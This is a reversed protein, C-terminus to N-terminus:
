VLMPHSLTLKRNDLEQEIESRFRLMIFHFDMVTPPAIEKWLLHFRVFCVAVLAYFFDMSNLRHMLYMELIADHKLGFWGFVLFSINFHTIAFSFWKMELLNCSKMIERTADSYQQVFFTLSHLGLMGIGRLDTTPDKGQFGIEQWQDGTLHFEGLEPFNRRFAIWCKLLIDNNEYSDQYPGRLVQLNQRLERFRFLQELAYFLFPRLYSNKLSSKVTLSKTALLQLVKKNVLLDFNEEFSANKAAKADTKILFASFPVKRPLLAGMVEELEKSHDICRDLNFKFFLLPMCLAITSTGSPTPDRKAFEEM